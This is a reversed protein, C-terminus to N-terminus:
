MKHNRRLIFQTLTEKSYDIHYEQLTHKRFEDIVKKTVDNSTEFNCEFGYDKCVLKSM